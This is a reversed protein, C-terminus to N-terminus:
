VQRYIKGAQDGPSRDTVALGKFKVAYTMEKTRTIGLKIAESQYAKYLQSVIFLGPANFRQSIM